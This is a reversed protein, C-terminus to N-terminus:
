GMVQLCMLASLTKADIIKGKAIAARVEKKTLCIPEEIHEDEDKEAFAPKLEEAKFLYIRESCFGPATFISGLKKWKKASFGIEEILERKACALPQEGKELTGAPIELMWDQTAPRFQRILLLRGKEDFPAIAVAGPHVVTDREFTSGNPAQWREKRVHFIRSHLVDHAQLLKFKAVM